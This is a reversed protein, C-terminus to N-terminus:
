PRPPGPRRWPLIFPRPEAWRAAREEGILLDEGYIEALVRAALVDRAAGSARIRGAVLLHIEDAYQSALNLDHTVVLVGRGAGAQEALRDFVWLQRRPDLAATPEDVLLLDADQALARALLLRQREGGSLTEVRDDRRATLEAEALAALVREEDERSPAAWPRRWAYRGGLVFDFLSTGQLAQGDQPVIAIRRARERASLTALDAGDVLVRGSDSPLLGALARLLTTKGAGNPGVLAVLRGGELRLDVGRVVEPGGEFALHLAEAELTVM